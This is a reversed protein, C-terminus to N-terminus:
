PAPPYRRKRGRVLKARTAQEHTLELYELFRDSPLLDQELAHRVNCGPEHDHTCDRFRCGEALELIDAYSNRYGSSGWLGLERLGPTDIVLAGNRTTRLQGASTTHRGRRDSERVPHTPQQCGEALANILTSKGAGSPGLLALTHRYQLRSELQSLSERSLASVTAIELDPAKSRALSVQRELDNTSDAKNLVVTVVVNDLRCLVQYRALSRIGQSRDLGCVLWIDDINAVIAQPREAGVAHREIANIRPLTDRIRGHHEQGRMGTYREVVVWDGCVPRTSVDNPCEALVEGAETEVLLLRGARTVRGPDGRCASALAASWTDNWGLSLLRPGIPTM